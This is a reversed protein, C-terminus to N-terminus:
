SMLATIAGGAVKQLIAQMVHCKQQMAPRQTTSLVAESDLGLKLGLAPLVRQDQDWAQIEVTMWLNLVDELVRKRVTTAMGADRSMWAWTVGIRQTQTVLSHVSGLASLTPTSIKLALTGMGVAMLLSVLTVPCKLKGAVCPLAYELVGMLHWRQYVTIAMGVGMLRLALTVGYRLIMASKISLSM